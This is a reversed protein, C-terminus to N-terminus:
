RGSLRREMRGSRESASAPGAADHGHVDQHQLRGPSVSITPTLARKRSKLAIRANASSAGIHGSFFNVKDNSFFLEQDILMRHVRALRSLSTSM